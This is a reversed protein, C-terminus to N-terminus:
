QSGRQRPDFADRLGDGLFNFAFMTVALAMSIMVRQRMGRFLQHPYEDIKRRAEPNGVMKLLEVSRLLATKRDKGQHAMLPEVLQQGITLVPNLSTMPDQFIMAVQSGRLSRIAEPPLSLLNQGEYLAQGAVIEGPPQPILKLLSLMAVSEGCGSEGVVRLVEGRKIDFSIGNMAHVSRERTRFRTTV